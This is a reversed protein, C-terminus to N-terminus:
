AAFEMNAITNTSRGTLKRRKITNREAKATDKDLREGQVRTVLNHPRKKFAETAKNKSAIEKPTEIIGFNKALHGSHLNRWDFIKRM